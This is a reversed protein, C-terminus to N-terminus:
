QTRLDFMNPDTVVVDGDFTMKYMMTNSVRQFIGFPEVANPTWAPVLDLMDIDQANEFGQMVTTSDITELTSAIEGFARVSLWSFIETGNLNQRELDESGAARMDDLFPVLGPFDDTSSSPAPVPSTYIASTAFTGLNLLDEETFGTAALAFGLDSGLQEFADAIQNAETAPLAMIVGQADNREAAAIFQTYDTAGAGVAVENVIQAGKAQVAPGLLQNLMAAVPSDPRMLTLKTKDQSVLADVNAYLTLLSGAFPTFVNPTSFDAIAMPNMGIRPIGATALIESVSDPSAPTFDALTATVGESVMKNACDVEKNPDGMSDCQILELPRGSVGGRSNFAEISATMGAAQSAVSLGGAEISLIQGVKIPEGTAANMPTAESGDSACGSAVLGVAAFAAIAPALTKLKM